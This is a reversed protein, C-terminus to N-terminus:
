ISEVTTPPESFLNNTGDFKTINIDNEYLKKDKSPFAKEILPALEIEGKENKEIKDCISIIKESLADFDAFSNKDAKILSIYKIILEKFLSLVFIVSHFKNKEVYKEKVKEIEETAKKIKLKLWLPFSNKKNCKNSKREVEELKNERYFFKNNTKFFVGSSCLTYKLAKSFDGQYKAGNKKRYLHKNPELIDRLKEFSIPEQNKKM